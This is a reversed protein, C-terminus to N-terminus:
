WLWEKWACPADNRFHLTELLVGLPREAWSRDPLPGRELLALALHLHRWIVRAEATEDAELSAVDRHGALVLPAARLPIGACDWAPDRWQADGWDILALYDHTDPAVLVNAAQLDAHCFRLPIPALAAPALRDLWAILWRADAAGYYGESARAEALPRIDEPADHRLLALPHEHATRTHLLALDRGVARWVGPTADPDLRGAELASELPVGRVREYIAYPVPLLDLSEDYAVIAPTHLGAARARPVVLCERRLARAFNLALRPVRLVHDDGLQWHVNCIGTDPLRTFRTVPLGHRAAIARLTTPTVPPSPALQLPTHEEPPFALAVLAWVCAVRPKLFSCARCPPLLSAM